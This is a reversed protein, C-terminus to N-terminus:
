HLNRAKDFQFCNFSFLDKYFDAVVATHKDKLVTTVEQATRQIADMVQKICALERDEKSDYYSANNDHISSLFQTEFYDAMERDSYRGESEIKNIDRVKDFLEALLCLEEMCQHSYGARMALGRHEEAMQCSPTEFMSLQIMGRSNSAITNKMGELPAEQKEQFMVTEDDDASEGTQLVQSVGTQQSELMTERIIQKFEIQINTAEDNASGADSPPQSQSMDEQDPIETVSEVIQSTSKQPQLSSLPSISELIKSEPVPTKEAPGEGAHQILTSEQEAANEEEIMDRDVPLGNLQRLNPLQKIVLDVQDEVHLNIHLSRLDPMSKLADVVLAFQEDNLDNGNFNLEQVRPLYEHLGAPLQTIYNSELNLSSLHELKKFQTWIEENLSTIGQNSLDLEQMEPDIDVIKQLIEKM